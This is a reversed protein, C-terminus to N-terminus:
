GWAHRILERVEIPLGAAHLKDLVRFLGISAAGYGEGSSDRHAEGGIDNRKEDLGCLACRFVLQKRGVPNFEDNHRGGDETVWREVPHAVAGDTLRPASRWIHPPPQGHHCECSLPPADGDTVREFLAVEFRDHGHVCYVSVTGWQGGLVGGM